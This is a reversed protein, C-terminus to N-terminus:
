AAESTSSRAAAEVYARLDAPSYKVARGIKLFRPGRGYVRWQELVNPKTDLFAAAAKTDMLPEM